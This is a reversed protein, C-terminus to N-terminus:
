NFFMANSAGTREPFVNVRSLSVDLAEFGFGVVFFCLWLRSRFGQFCSQGWLGQYLFFRSQWFM